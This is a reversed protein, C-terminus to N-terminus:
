DKSRYEIMNWNPNTFIDSCWSFDQEPYYVDSYFSLLGIVSSFSGFSLIVQKCTSGFHITDTENYNIITATPYKKHLEKIIEHNPSDSSIYLNDFSLKSLALSYYIFGPTYQAVDGLRIHVFCDNNTNYREKFRNCLIINNMNEKIRLYRYLYNSIEKSQFYDSCNNFDADLNDKNLICMYNSTDLSIYSNYRKEGSFLQIGLAIIKDYWENDYQVFLNHKKAVISVALFRYVQNCFRGGGRVTVM